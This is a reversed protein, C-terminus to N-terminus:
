RREIKIVLSDLLLKVNANLMACGKFLMITNLKDPINDLKNSLDEILSEHDRYTLERQNKYNMIDLFALDLLEIFMLFDNKDKLVDSIELQAFYLLDEGDKMQELFEILVDKISLYSSNEYTEIITELSGQFNSLLLADELPINKKTAEVVLQHKSTKKLRINMCRSIITSLVNNINATTIIAYIDSTPEELFKLLSNVAETTANEIKNIIYIKSGNQELASMSFREQIEEIQSKKITHESGDITILDTYSENEIRLCDLCEDCPESNECVINKAVYKAIELLPTDKYGNLLIAQPFKNNKKCNLLTSYAVKQHEKFYEKM